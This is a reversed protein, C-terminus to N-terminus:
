KKKNLKNKLEKLDSSLEEASRTDKKTEMGSILEDVSPANQKAGVGHSPNARSTTTSISSERNLSDRIDLLTLIIKDLALLLIGSIFLSISWGFFELGGNFGLLFCLGSLGLSTYALYTITKM